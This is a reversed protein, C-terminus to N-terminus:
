AKLCTSASANLQIEANTDPEENSEYVAKDDRNGIFSVLIFILMPVFMWKQRIAIGLNSTCSTLVLWSMLSYSGLFVMNGPPSGGRRRFFRAVGVGFLGLLFLNEIGAALSLGTTAETIAPRFMYSFLQMPLSMSSMDVSSNGYESSAQRSEVYNM